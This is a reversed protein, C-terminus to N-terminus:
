CGYRKRRFGPNQRGGRRRSVYTRENKRSSFARYASARASPKPYQVKRLFLSEGTQLDCAVIGLPIRLEEIPKGYTYAHVLRRIRDGKLFGLRPMTYDAYLRRKFAKAVKKMTAVDHGAAYFSGVLAGM